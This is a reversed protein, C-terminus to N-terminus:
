PTSFARYPFRRRRRSNWRRRCDALTTAALRTAAAEIRSELDVESQHAPPPFQGGGHAGEHLGRRRLGAARPALEVWVSAM